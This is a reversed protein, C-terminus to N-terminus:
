VSAGTARAIAARAAELRQYALGEWDSDGMEKGADHDQELAGIAGQLAELLDPAAAILRADDAASLRTPLDHDNARDVEAIPCREVDAEPLIRWLGEPFIPKSAAYNDRVNCPLAIWPGPTHGM